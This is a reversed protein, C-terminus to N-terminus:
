MGRMGAADFGKVGFRWIIVRGTHKSTMDIAGEAYMEVLWNFATNRSIDLHRAFEGATVMRGADENLAALAHWAKDMVFRKRGSM